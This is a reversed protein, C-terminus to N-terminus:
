EVLRVKNGQRSLYQNLSDRTVLSCFDPSLKSELFSGSIQLNFM